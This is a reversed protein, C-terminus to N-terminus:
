GLPPPTSTSDTPGHDPTGANFYSSQAPAADASDARTYEATSAPAYDRDRWLKALFVIAFLAFLLIVLTRFVGDTAAEKEAQTAKASTRPAVAQAVVVSTTAFEEAGLEELKQQSLTERLAQLEARASAIQKRQIELGDELNKLTGNLQNFRKKIGPASSLAAQKDEKKANKENDGGCASLLALGGAMVALLLLTKMWQKMNTM